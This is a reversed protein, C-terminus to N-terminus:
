FGGLTMQKGLGKLEDESYGMAELIRMVAPLLQNDIYYNPDYDGENCYSEIVAKDSISGGRKTIIYPVIDGEDFHVGRGKALAKKVAMVHPGVSVYDTIKRSLKTNIVLREKEVTGSKIEDITKRVIEAAKEVDREGLLANLVDEQTQKAIKAWDRRRTELGKVILKGEEDKLAYRKKTIFIGRPYFGEFELEMSGPLENNIKKLFNFSNEKIEDASKDKQSVFISDTDGYLVDFSEEKAKKVTDHIYERGYATTSEACEMCYWRAREFGMYGYFSNGLLKLAQQETDLVRIRRLNLKKDAVKDAGRDADKKLKKLEKLERKVDVRRKILDDLIEPIFGERKKCFWYQRNDIRPTKHGDDKCCDCNLTSADINHSIIISPYLSRFDYLAINDKIGREPEVVYAGKIRTKSRLKAVRDDPKNPVLIDKRFAHIMLLQEVKQSSSMRSVEYPTMKLFRSFEYVLPLMNEAIRLTSVVDSLSYEMLMKYDEPNSKYNEWYKYINLADVDMKEEGFIGKYVEELTYRPFNFSQRCVPFLDVHPRGKVRAGQSMGRREMKLESGDIGINLTISNKEARTKIYPFDFNDGNYSVLIDVGRKKITDIFKEIVEKENKLVEVYGPLEIKNKNEDAIKGTTKNAASNKRESGEKKYYTWVREFGLNDAYSIVVLPDREAAPQGYRNYVEIDFAAVVLFTKDKNEKNDLSNDQINDPTKDPNSGDTQTRDHAANEMPIVDSNILYRKTFPIDAEYVGEVDCIRAIDDRLQAVDKPFRTIVKLVPVSDRNKTLNIKEIERIDKYEQLIKVVRKLSENEADGDKVDESQTHPEAQSGKPIQDQIHAIDETFRVALNKERIKQSIPVAYMYPKFDKVEVIHRGSKSNKYFLRITTEDGTITYDVDLLTDFSTQSNGASKEPAEKSEDDKHSEGMYKLLTM